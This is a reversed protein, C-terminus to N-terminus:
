VFCCTRGVIHKKEQLLTISETITKLCHARMPGLTYHTHHLPGSPVLFPYLTALPPLSLPKGINQSAVLPQDGVNAKAQRFPLTFLRSGWQRCPFSHCRNPPFPSILPREGRRVLGDESLSPIIPESEGGRGENSGPSLLCIPFELTWEAEHSM